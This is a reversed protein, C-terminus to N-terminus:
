VPRARLAVSRGRLGATHLVRRSRPIGERIASPGPHDRLVRTSEEVAFDALELAKRWGRRNFVFFESGDRRADLRALPAPILHLPLSLTELVLLHGRCVTRLARLARIPDPVLQLVWGVFVLEFHGDVDPELDHIDRVGYQARSGLLEAATRFRRERDPDPLDVAVVDAARRRELEFAWFGDMTGVDLCRLGELSRPPWPMRDVNPRHDWWGPTIVGPAVEITHWWDHGAIARRAEEPSAVPRDDPHM